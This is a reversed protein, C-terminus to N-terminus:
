LTQEGKRAIVELSPGLLLRGASIMYLIHVAAAISTKLMRTWLRVGSLRANRVEIKDFGCDKLMRRIFFPTFSYEHLVPSHRLLASFLTYSSHRLMWPHFCGNPFRLFLLGDEKLLSQTHRIDEWPSTCHELVNVFTVADYTVGEPFDNLIGRFLSQGVLNEAHDMSKMSLDVGMVRWGRDQAEKLLFGCGCGVDLLTGPSKEREIIDMIQHYVPNRDGTIEIGGYEDFYRDKYYRYLDRARHDGQIDRFILDCVDCRFYNRGAWSVYLWGAYHCYPCIKRKEDHKAKM